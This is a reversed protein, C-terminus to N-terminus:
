VEGTVLQDNVTGEPRARVVGTIALVYENRLDAAGDVVCQLLGTRDRLDVFALHEGHERRRAVWGTVTVTRGIDATTLRGCYDTRSTM